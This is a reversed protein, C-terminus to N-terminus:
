FFIAFRMLINSILPAMKPEQLQKKIQFKLVFVCVAVVRRLEDIYTKSGKLHKKQDSIKLRFVTVCRHTKLQRRWKEAKSYTKQNSV